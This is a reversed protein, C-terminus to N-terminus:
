GASHQSIEVGLGLMCWRMAPAISGEQPGEPDAGWLGWHSRVTM